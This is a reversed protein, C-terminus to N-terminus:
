SPHGPTSSEGLSCSNGYVLVGGSLSAQAAATATKAARTLKNFALRKSGSPLVGFGRHALIIQGGKLVFTEHRFGVGGKERRIGRGYSPDCVGRYFSDKM